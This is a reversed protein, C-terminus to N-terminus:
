SEADSEIYGAVGTFNYPQCRKGYKTSDNWTANNAFFDVIPSLSAGTGHAGGTLYITATSTWVRSGIGSLNCQWDGGTNFAPRLTLTPQSRMPTPLHVFYRSQTNTYIFGVINFHVAGSAFNDTRFYYRQCKFLTTAFDEPEVDTATSGTELQIGTILWNNATDDMCNVQNPSSYINGSNNSDTGWSGVTSAAHFNSGAALPWILQLGVNHNTQWTGGTDGPITITKREWTNAASVTFEEVRTRSQDSNRLAVSHTGTKPSKIYFSLTVTQAQATGWGLHAITYGELQTILNYLDSNALTNDPDATTVDVKYSNGFDNPSDTSQSVTVTGFGSGGLKFRDPGDAYESSTIGSNSTGRQAVQMAGNIIKNKRKGIKDTTATNLRELGVQNLAM